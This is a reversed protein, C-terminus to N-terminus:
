LSIGHAKRIRRLGDFQMILRAVSDGTLRKWRGDGAAIYDRILSSSIKGTRPFFVVEVRKRAVEALENKEDSLFLVDPHCKKMMRDVARSFSDGDNLTVVRVGHINLERLYAEMMEKRETGSFPNTLENKHESSGIAVILQYNENFSKIVSMHGSHPPNFRGWYVGVKRSVESKKPIVNNIESRGKKPKGAM